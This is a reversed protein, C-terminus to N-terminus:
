RPQRIYLPYLAQTAEAAPDAGAPRITDM